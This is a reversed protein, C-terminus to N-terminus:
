SGRVQTLVPLTSSLPDDQVPQYTMDHFQAFYIDDDIVGEHNARNFGRDDGNAGRITVENLARLIKAKDDIGGARTVAAALLNLADSAYMSYEPLGIVEERAETKVGVKPPGYASDYADVYADFPGPGVEATMRGDAFTLGNLWGPHDSLEQRVFPDAADPPAFVPVKWGSRRAARVAAAIAPPQAWVILGTAGAHRARLIAAALDTAAQPVEIRAVVARPDYAFATDIAAAGALGYESDDHLVGLRLHRKALYEAFRFSIGHDDPAIRFVNPRAVPDVLGSGGEYTVVIPIDAKRALQWSADVGTGEDVIASAGDAIAHRVNAVAARSSLGDDYRKVRVTYVEGGASVGGSSNIQSAALEVGNAIADGRASQVSFPANVAILMTKKTTSHGGCGAIATIALAAALYRRM